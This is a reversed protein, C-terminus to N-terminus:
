LLQPPLPCGADHAAECLGRVVRRHTIRTLGFDFNGTLGQLIRFWPRDSIVLLRSPAGGINGVLEYEFDEDVSARIDKILFWWGLYVPSAPEDTVGIVWAVDGRPDVLGFYKNTLLSYERAPNAPQGKKKTNKGKKSPRPPAFCEDIGYGMVEPTHYQVWHERPMVCVKT